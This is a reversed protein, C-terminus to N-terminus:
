QHRPGRRLDLSRLGMLLQHHRARPPPSPSPVVPQDNRRYFTRARSSSSPFPKDSPGSTLDSDEVQEATPTRAAAAAPPAFRRTTIRRRMMREIEVETVAETETTSVEETVVIESADGLVTQDEEEEYEEEEEEKLGGEQSDELQEDHSGPVSSEDGSTTSEDMRRADHMRRASPAPLDVASRGPSSRPLSSPESIAAALARRSGDPLQPISRTRQRNGGPFASPRSFRSVIRSAKIAVCKGWWVRFAEGLVSKRDLSIALVRLQRVQTLQSWHRLTSTKLQTRHFRLAPLAQTKTLWVQLSQERLRDDVMERTEHEHFNLSQEITKDVWHTWVWRLKKADRSDCWGVLLKSRRRSDSARTRWFDLLRSRLEIKQIEAFGNALEEYRRIDSVRHIWAEFYASLVRTSYDREVARVSDKLEVVRAVWIRLAWRTRSPNVRSEFLMCLTHDEKKQCTLAAWDHFAQKLLKRKRRRVLRHQRARQLRGSWVAWGQRLCQTRWEACTRRHSDQIRSFVIMWRNLHRAVLSFRYRDVAHASLQITKAQYVQRWAKLTKSTLRRAVKKQFVQRQADLYHRIRNFRALWAGFATKLFRTVLIRGLLRGREHIIWLNMMQGALNHNRVAIVRSAKRQMKKLRYRRHAWARLCAKQTSKVWFDHALHLSMALQRWREMVEIQLRQTSIRMVQFERGKLETRWQWHVLLRRASNTAKVDAHYRDALHSMRRLQSFQHTWRSIVLSTLNSDRLRQVVSAKSVLAWKTLHQILLNRNMLTQVQSIAQNEYNKRRLRQHEATATRWRILVASKSRTKAVGEVLRIERQRKGFRSRWKRWAYGVILKDRGLHAESNAMRWYNALHSWTHFGLRLLTERRVRDSLADLPDVFRSGLQLGGDADDDGLSSEETSVSSSTITPRVPTFRALRNPTSQIQRHMMARPVHSRTPAPPTPSSQLPPSDPHTRLRNARITRSADDVGSSSSSSSSSDLGNMLSHSPPSLQLLHQTTNNNNNNEGDPGLLGQSACVRSWRQYWDQGAVLSLKLLLSYYKERSPTELQREEMVANYVALIANFAPVNRPTRSIIEALIAADTATLFPFSGHPTRASADSTANSTLSFSFPM